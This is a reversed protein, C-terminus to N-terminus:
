KENLMLGKIKIVTEGTITDKTIEVAEGFKETPIQVKVNNSFCLNRVKLSNGIMSTDKHISELAINRMKLYAIYEDIMHGDIFNQEAFDIPNIETIGDSLIYTLLATSLDIKKVDSISNLNKIFEKTIQFFSNTIVNSDRRFRLGLFTGYFYEAKAKSISSNTNSDFIYCDIEDPEIEKKTVSNNIFLGFKQFKENKTMVIDSIYSLLIEKGDNSLSFGDQREAKIVCFFDKKMLEVRQVTGEVCIVIGAPYIRKDQSKSLMRTVEKSFEVFQQETREGKWYAALRAFMSGESVNEFEMRMSHSKSGMSKVIRERIKDSGTGREECKENFFPPVEKRAEDRKFVQHVIMRNIKMGALKDIAM